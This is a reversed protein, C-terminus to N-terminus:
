TTQQKQMSERLAKYEPKIVIFLYMLLFVVGEVISEFVNLKQWGFVIAYHIIVEGLLVAISKGVIKLYSREGTLKINDFYYLYFHLFLYALLTSVAATKYGFEPIFLFNLGLNLAAAFSFGIIVLRYKNQFKFRNDRFLCYGFIYASFAVWPIIDYGERFDEGFFIVTVPRAFISVWVVLPLIILLYYRFYVLFHRKVNGPEYELVKLLTPNIVSFFVNIIAMVSVQSFMYVQNYIGVKSVDSYMSIVYRDSFTLLIISLNTAIGPLSFKGMELLMSGSLKSFGLRINKMVPVILILMIVFESLISAIPIAEIRFDYVFALLAQVGFSLVARVSHIANYLGSRNELRFIVLIFGLVQNQFTQIFILVILKTMLPNEQLYSWPTIILIFVLTAALHLLLLGSYFANLRGEKKYKFYFRWISNSMWTYLFVSLINITILILSYQGYEEPTFYRTFIPSRLLSIVIPIATGLLYWGTDKIIQQHQNVPNNSM